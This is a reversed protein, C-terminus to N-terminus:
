TKRWDKCCVKCTDNKPCAKSLCAPKGEETFPYKIDVCPSIRQIDNETNQGADAVAPHPASDSVENEIAASPITGKKKDKM